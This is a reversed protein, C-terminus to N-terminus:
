GNMITPKALSLNSLRDKKNIMIPSFVMVGLNASHLYNLYYNM